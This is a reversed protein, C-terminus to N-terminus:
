IYIIVHTQVVDHISWRFPSSTKSQSIYWVESLSIHSAGIYKNCLWTLRGLFERMSHPFLGRKWIYRRVYFYPHIVDDDSQHNIRMRPLVLSLFWVAWSVTMISNNPLVISSIWKYIMSCWLPNARSICIKQPTSLMISYTLLSFIFVVGFSFTVLSWCGPIFCYSFIRM